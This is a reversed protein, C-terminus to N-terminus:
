PGSIVLSPTVTQKSAQMMDLASSLNDRETQLKHVSTEQHHLLERLQGNEEELQGLVAEQHLDLRSQLEALQEDRRSLAAELMDIRKSSALSESGIQEDLQVLFAKLREIEGQYQRERDPELMFATCFYLIENVANAPFRVRIGHKSPM